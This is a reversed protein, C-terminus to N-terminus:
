ENEEEEELREEYEKKTDVVDKWKEDRDEPLGAFSIESLIAGFVEFVSFEKEGEVVSLSNGLENKDRIIFTKDLIIPLHKLRYLPTFEIGYSTHTLPQEGEGYVEDEQPEYKGWGSVDIYVSVENKDHECPERLGGLKDIFGGEEDDKHKEYFLRYDFQEAVWSCVIFDLDEKSEPLCDKKIEEIYSRLPFCGLDSSFIIDMIDEEKEVINFFDQLTIDEDIEIMDTLYPVLSDIKELVYDDSDPNRDNEHFVGDKRLYIM